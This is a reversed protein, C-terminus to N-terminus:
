IAESLSRPERIELEAKTKSKLGNIFFFTLEEENMECEFAYDRFKAVYDDYSIGEHKLNVLKTKIANKRAIANDSALLLTFFKKIDREEPKGATERMYKLLVLQAAGQVYNTIVYLKKDEPVGAAKLANSIITIWKEVNDSSRGFHIPTHPDLKYGFEKEGVNQQNQGSSISGSSLPSTKSDRVSTLDNVTKLNKVEETL